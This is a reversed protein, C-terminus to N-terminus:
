ARATTLLTTGCHPCTPQEGMMLWAQDTTEDALLWVKDNVRRAVIEDTFCFISPCFSRVEM